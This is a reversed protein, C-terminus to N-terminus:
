NGNYHPSMFSPNSGSVLGGHPALYVQTWHTTMM